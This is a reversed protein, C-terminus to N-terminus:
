LRNGANGKGAKALLEELQAHARTSDPEREVAVRCAAIAEELLGRDSLKSALVLPIVSSLPCNRSGEKLVARAEDSERQRELVDALVLYAQELRPQNQIAHRAYEEAAPYQMSRAAELAMNALAPAYEPSLDLAKQFYERARDFQARSGYSVGLQNYSEVNDPKLALAREYCAIAQDHNQAAAYEVGLNHWGIWATPNLAVTDRWLVYSARYVPVRQFTRWALMVVVAVAILPGASEGWQVRRLAVTVAAVIGVILPIGALYQFHDAVYSFRMPYTNFFGMAPFLAALYALAVVLSARRLRSPLLFTLGLVALLGAPFVWQWMAAPDISWRPYIFILKGPWLLKAVYFWAARSALLIHGAVSLKWEGGQAGVQYKELFITTLGAAMGMVLMPAVALFDRVRLAGRKWWTILLLSVPLTCAVTKSLLAATFMALSLAYWGAGSRWSRGENRNAFRLYSLAALLYFFGALTNKRETIWAVSEVEIPHVAFLMGAIWAGPVGLERLILALLVASAGHLLVNVLHQPVAHLGWLHYEIWFSTHVLPYYQPTSRPETWISVLGGVDRLTPNSTVYYDDDWIYGADLVGFYVLFTLLLILGAMLAPQQAEAEDCREARLVADM